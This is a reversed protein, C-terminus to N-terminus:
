WIKQESSHCYGRGNWVGAVTMIVTRPYKRPPIAVTVPITWRVPESLTSFMMVAFRCLVYLLWGIVGLRVCLQLLDHFMQIDFM